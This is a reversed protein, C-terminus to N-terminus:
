ALLMELAFDILLDVVKGRPEYKVLIELAQAARLTHM